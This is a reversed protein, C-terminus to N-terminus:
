EDKSCEFQIAPMEDKATMEKNYVRLIFARKPEQLKQIFEFDMFNFVQLDKVTVISANHRNTAEDDMKKEDQDELYFIYLQDITMVLQIDLGDTMVSKHHDKEVSKARTDM